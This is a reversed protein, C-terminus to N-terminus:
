AVAWEHDTESGIVKTSKDKLLELSCCEGQGQYDCYQMTSKWLYHGENCICEPPQKTAWATNLTKLRGKVDALLEPDVPTKYTAIRGDLTIYIFTIFEVEDGKERILEVYSHNQLLHNPYPKGDKVHFRSDAKKKYAFAFDHVSKVEFITKESPSYNDYEGTLDLKDSELRVNSRIDPYVAELHPRIAEEMLHGAKWRLIKGGGVYSLKKIGLRKFYHARPCDSISSAHWKEFERVENKDQIDNYLGQALEDNM